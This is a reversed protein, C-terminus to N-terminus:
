ATLVLAGCRWCTFWEWGPEVFNPTGDNWCTYTMRKSRPGAETQPGADKAGLGGRKDPKKGINEAM